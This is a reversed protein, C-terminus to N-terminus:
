DLKIKAQNLAGISGVLMSLVAAIILIPQLDEFLSIFPGTMLIIVLGLTAIKPVIAFFATVTTPAGEYVDPVWQHFPVVGMKFFLGVLM